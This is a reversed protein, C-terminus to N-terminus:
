IEGGFFCDAAWPAQFTASLTDRRQVKFFWPHHSPPRDLLFLNMSQQYINILPQQLWWEYIKPFDMIVVIIPPQKHHYYGILELQQNMTIVPLFMTTIAPNFLTAVLIAPGGHHPRSPRRTNSVPHREWHYLCLGVWSYWLIFSPLGWNANSWLADGWSWSSM